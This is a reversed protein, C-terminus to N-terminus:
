RTVEKVLTMTGTVFPTVEGSKILELSYVGTIFTLAATALASINITITKLITDIVIGDNETTLELIFEADELKSRLQMRATVGTLDVPANYELIGGSVYDTFGFANVANIQLTDATTDTITHYVDASNIEKMGAVNTVKARWGTPVGHAVATISIPATKAIATIPKYVKTSSEWRLVEKFTSGQYVKFNVKVPQTM